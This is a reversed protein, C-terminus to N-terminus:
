PTVPRQALPRTRTLLSAVVEFLGLVLHPVFVQDAFGFLWPSSALLVGSLGDLALHAPMPLVKSLGWEYDTLLSYVIAAVGLVPFIWSELGGAAFGLLWPLVIFALGVLYDLVGHVSTPIFRM